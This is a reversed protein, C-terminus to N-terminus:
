TPHSGPARVIGGTSAGSLTRQVMRPTVDLRVRSLFLFAPMIEAVAAADM